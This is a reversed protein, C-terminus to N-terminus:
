CKEERLGHKFFMMVPRSEGDIDRYECMAIMADPDMSEGLIKLFKM